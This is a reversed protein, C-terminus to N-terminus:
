RAAAVARPGDVATAETFPPYKYGDGYNSDDMTIDIRFLRAVAELAKHGELTHGRGTSLQVLAQSFAVYAAQGVSPALKAEAQAAVLASALEGGIAFSRDQSREFEHVLAV